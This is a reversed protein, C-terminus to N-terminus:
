NSSFYIAKTKDENIRINWRKSWEAVSNLGGQLKRLVYGKKGETAYVPTM